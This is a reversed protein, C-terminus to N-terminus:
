SCVGFAPWVPVVCVVVVRLQFREGDADGRIALVLLREGRDLLEILLLNTLAKNTRENIRITPNKKTPDNEKSQAKTTRANTKHQCCHPHLQLRERAADGTL